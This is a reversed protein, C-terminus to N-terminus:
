SGPLDPGLLTSRESSCLCDFLASTLTSRSEAAAAVPGGEGRPAVRIVADASFSEVSTPLEWKYPWLIEGDFIAFRV